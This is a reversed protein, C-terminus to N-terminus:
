LTAMVTDFASGQFLTPVQSVKQWFEQDAMMQQM